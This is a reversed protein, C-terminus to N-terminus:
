RVTLQMTKLVNRIRNILLKQDACYVSPNDYGNSKGWRHLTMGGGCVGVEPCGKCINSTPIQLSHYEKFEETAMLDVLDDNHVSWPRTFRDAQDFSSKLTDNKSISGDTDIVVIGFGTLGLGEKSGQGGLVLKILDDLFRIRIPTPDSLYIDLLTTFWEGYETSDVRSKGWPLKTHNGDRYLFDVSPPALSKLFEYIELPNSTADVVTLLGSYLFSHERHGRLLDIGKLVSVFTGNGDHGIRFADHAKKPGDISVSVTTRTEYCIDLIENTILIGNTQIGFQCDEPLVHRFTQLLNRLKKPGLLLPEGGHLVVAFPHQQFDYLLKLSKAIASVTSLSIQAPMSSWGSDGM